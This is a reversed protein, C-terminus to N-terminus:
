LIWKTDKNGELSSASERSFEIPKVRLRINSFLARGLKEVATVNACRGSATRWGWADATWM